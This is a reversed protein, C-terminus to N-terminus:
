VGALLLSLPPLFLLPLLLLPLLLLPPLTVPPPPLPVAPSGYPKPAAPQCAANLPIVALLRASRNSAATYLLPDLAPAEM